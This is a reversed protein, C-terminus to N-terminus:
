SMSNKKVINIYSKSSYISCKIIYMIQMVNVTICCHPREKGRPGFMVAEMERATLQTVTRYYLCFICAYYYESLM